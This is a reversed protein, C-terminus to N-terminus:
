NLNKQRNQEIQAMANSRFKLAIKYLLGRKGGSIKDKLTELYASYEDSRLYEDIIEDILELWVKKDKVWRKDAPVPKGSVRESYEYMKEPNITSHMQDFNKLTAPDSIDGDICAKYKYFDDTGYMLTWVSFRYLAQPYNKMFELIKGKILDRDLEYDQDLEEKSELTKTRDIQFHEPAGLILLPRALIHKGILDIFESATDIDQGKHYLKNRDYIVEEIGVGAMICGAAAMQSLITDWKNRWAEVSEDKELKPASMYGFWSIKPGPQSNVEKMFDTIAQLHEISSNIMADAFTMFVEKKEPFAKKFNLIEQRAVGLSSEFGPGFFKKSPCFDCGYLCGSGTQTVFTGDFQFDPLHNLENFPAAGNVEEESFPTAARTNLVGLDGKESTDAGDILRQFPRNKVISIHDDGSEARYALSGVEDVEKGLALSLMPLEGQGICCADIGTSDPDSLIEEYALYHEGGGVVLKSDGFQAKISRCLAYADEVQNTLNSVGIIDSSEILQSFREPDDQLEGFRVISVPINYDSLYGAMRHVGLNPFNQFAYDQNDPVKQLTKFDILLIRKSSPKAKDARAEEALENLDDLGVLGDNKENVDVVRGDAEFSRIKKYFSEKPLYSEDNM